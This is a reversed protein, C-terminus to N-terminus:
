VVILMAMGARQCTSGGFPRWAESRARAIPANRRRRVCAAADTADSPAVGANFFGRLRAFRPSKARPVGLAGEPRPSSKEKPSVLSPVMLVATPALTETGPPPRM